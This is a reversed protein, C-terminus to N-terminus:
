EEEDEEEFLDAADESFAIHYLALGNESLLYVLSGFPFTSLLLSGEKESKRLILDIGSPNDHDLLRELLQTLVFAQVEEECQQLEELAKPHFQIAVKAEPIEPFDILPSLDHSRKVGEIAQFLHPSQFFYELALSVCDQPSVSLQTAAEQLTHSLESSLDIQLTTM